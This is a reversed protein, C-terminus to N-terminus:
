RGGSAAGGPGAPRGAGTRGIGPDRGPTEHYKLWVM